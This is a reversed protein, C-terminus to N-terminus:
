HPSRLSAHQDGPSRHHLHPKSHRLVAAGLQAHLSHTAPTCFLLAGRAGHAIPRVHQHEKKKKELLLRCVLDSRSQLESTHEESRSVIWAIPRLLRNPTINVPQRNIFITRPGIAFRAFAREILWFAGRLIAATLVFFVLFLELKLKFIYWYVSSYGLSGFWLASLYIGSARSSVFLILAIIVLIWWLRRRRRPRPSGVDIIEDNSFRVPQSMPPYSVGLTACM